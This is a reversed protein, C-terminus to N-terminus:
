FTAFLIRNEGLRRYEGPAKKTSLYQAGEDVGKVWWGRYSKEYM